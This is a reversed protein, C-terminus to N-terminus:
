KKDPSADLYGGMINLEMASFDPRNLPAQIKGPKGGYNNAFNDSKWEKHVVVCLDAAEKVISDPLMSPFLVDRNFLQRLDLEADHMLEVTAIRGESWLVGLQYASSSVGACIRLIRRGLNRRHEIEKQM